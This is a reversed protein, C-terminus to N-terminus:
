LTLPNTVGAVTAAPPLTFNLTSNAGVVAAVKLPVTLMALLAGFEGLTNDKLPVPVAADTVRDEFGVLRLKVFTFAPLELEFFTVTVLLPLVLKVTECIVTFALSKATLPMVVGVVSAAPCFAVILTANLGDAESFIVPLMVIM